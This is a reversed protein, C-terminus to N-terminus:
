QTPKMGKAIAAIKARQEEIVAAFETSTGARLASGM